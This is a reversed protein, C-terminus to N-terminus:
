FKVVVTGDIIQISGDDPYSPMNQVELNNEFLSSDKYEPTFGTYISIQKKYNYEELMLEHTYLDVSLGDIDVEDTDKLSKDELNEIDIFSVPMEDTYGSTYKIRTILTTYNSMLRNQILEMKLYIQNDYYINRASIYVLLACLVMSFPIKIKIDLDLTNLLVIPLLFLANISYLTLTHIAEKDAMVGIFNIALPIFLVVILLFIGQRISKKFGKYLLVGILILIFVILTYYVISRFTAPLLAKEYYFKPNFFLLYAELVRSVYTSISEQGMNNISMYDTLQINFLALFLKTIIFYGVVCCIVFALYYIAKTIISLVCGKTSNISYIEVIYYFLILSLMFPIFSQYIGISFMQLMTAIIFTYWKKVKCVLCCASVSLMLGFMYYPATFMYLFLTAVVPNCVLISCLIIILSKKKICFLKQIMIASIAIFLISFMVNIVQISTPYGFLICIISQLIGLAWRGSTYTAGVSCLAVSEDHVTFKNFIAMSHAFFALVFSIFLTFKYEKLWDLIHSKFEM